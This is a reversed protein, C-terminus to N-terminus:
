PELKGTSSSRKRTRRVLLAAFALAWPWAARKPRAAFACSSKLEDDDAPVPLCATESDCPAWSPPAERADNAVLIAQSKLWSARSALDGFVPETCHEKGRSVVGIVRGEADLAPGGSDGSCPGGSGVWENGKVDDDGCDLGSCSVELDNLRLRTGVPKGEAADDVGYGVASYPEGAAVPEDLRPLLPTPGTLPAKLVLLVEDSGCLEDGADEPLLIRSVALYDQEDDTISPQAVVFVAGASDPPEFKTQQCLVKVEKGATDAVCHRATLVLRPALLSGSCNGGAFNVVAVVATDDPAPAGGSITALLRASKEDACGLALTAGLLASPLKM